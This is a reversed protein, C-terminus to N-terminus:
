EVRIPYDTIFHVTFDLSISNSKIPNSSSTSDLPTLCASGKENKSLRAPTIVLYYPSFKMDLDVVSLTVIKMKKFLDHGANSFPRIFHTHGGELESCMIKEFHFSSVSEHSDSNKNRYLIMSPFLSIPTIRSMHLRISVNIYSSLSINESYITIVNGFIQFPYNKKEIQNFRLKKYYFPPPPPIAFCNPIHKFILGKEFLYSLKKADSTKIDEKDLWVQIIVQFDGLEAEHFTSLILTYYGAALTARLVCCGSRYAGSSLTASSRLLRSTAYYGEILRINVSYEQPSELFILVNSAIPLFLQVHPNSFYSWLNNSCGGATPKTWSGKLYRSIQLAETPILPPLESITTKVPSYTKITFNFEEKQSYQSVVLVYETNKLVLSNRQKDSHDFSSLPLSSPLHDRTVPVIKSKSSLDVILKMLICEGNTYVGQIVPPVPCCLRCNDSYLHVALYKQSLDRKRERIHRSLFIWLEFPNSNKRDQPHVQILFQPNFAAIHSDDPLLSRATHQTSEWKGHIETHYPFCSPNWCVYLHSFWKVIDCWEIWFQGDDVKASEKRNYGLEKELQKTWNKKDYPSYAGRWRVCCWPNKMFLLRKGNLYRFRLISYAHRAVIGSSQSVGEPYSLGSPASDWIDSTGLCAVCKGTCLGDYLQEWVLNWQMEEYAEQLDYGGTVLVKCNDPSGSQVDVRFPITEPIWGTIHYLDAGPNSGQLFYSGGMLKVFCKELLSVWFEHKDDSHASLVKDDHRVPLYDDLVIKRAVGNFFIRCAYFGSPNVVPVPFSKSSDTTAQPYIISSLVPINKTKEYEALVALSSLFSCDGVFGQRIKKSDVQNRILCPSILKASKLNTIRKWTFFKKQQKKSLGIYGDLDTYRGDRLSWGNLFNDSSLEQFMQNFNKQEFLKQSNISKTRCVISPHNHFHSDEKSVKENFRSEIRWLSRSTVVNRNYQRLYWDRIDSQEYPKREKTEPTQLLLQYTEEDLFTQQAPLMFAESTDQSFLLPEASLTRNNAQSNYEKQSDFYKALSPLTKNEINRFVLSRSLLTRIIKKSHCDWKSCCKLKKQQNPIKRNIRSVVSNHLLDITTYNIPGNTFSSSSSSISLPEKEIWIQKSDNRFGLYNSTSHNVGINYKRLFLTEEGISDPLLSSVLVDKQFKKKNPKKELNSALTAYDNQFYKKFIFDIHPPWSDIWFNNQIDLDNADWPLLVIPGLCGIVISGELLIQDKKSLEKFLDCSKQCQQLSVNHDNHVENTERYASYQAKTERSKMGSVEEKNREHLLDCSVRNTKEQYYVNETTEHSYLDKHLEQSVPHSQFFPHNSKTEERIQSEKVKQSRVIKSSMRHNRYCGNPHSLNSMESFSLAEKYFVNDQEEHRENFPISLANGNIKSNLDLSHLGNSHDDSTIKRNSCQSGKLLDHSTPDENKFKSKQCGM